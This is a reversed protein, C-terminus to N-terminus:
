PAAIFQNFWLVLTLLGWIKHSHDARQEFHESLLRSVPEPNLFGINKLTGPSLVDTVYPKLWGRIWRANPVNFGAKDRWIINDPLKGRMAAKLIYKTNRIQRLKLHPPIRAAFEVLRYDLMPERVELGHAMTMRDVKVLMDSPLYLCTDVYLMQNLPHSANTRAYYSRYLDIVDAEVGSTGTLPSLIERRLEASSILRRTAHADLPDLYIYNIFQKLKYEWSVKSDNSPISNILPSVLIRNLWNPILSKYFKHFFYAQHTSYGALLEDAGDGSLVMKVKERSFQALYYVAIMSSDATPEESHWVLKPLIEADEAKVIREHHDAAITGAMQRAYDFEDFTAEGFGITFTNLPQSLNHAMFYSVSSSDLGGSLFAGFPVDSVLRIRISDELLASFEEIYEEESLYQGEEFQYDWYRKEQVQGNLGVRLYCGPELQRIGAFLTFPHPTYNLALFYALAQHDVRREVSPDQLLAKIESGFLFHSPSSYYFLPKVGLRDRVLWLTKRNEDWLGFAFMGNLRHVCETGWEEYAHIIVESDTQSCFRHGKNELERRLEIFNYIEGNYTIWVTGDENSMPQHGSSSLDIIALRRHGLGIPGSEFFGEGDPGRHTLVGTMRKLLVFDVPAGNFCYIGAIGCM